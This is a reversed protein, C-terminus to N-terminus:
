QANKSSLNLSLIKQINNKIHTHYFADQNYIIEIVITKDIIEFDIDDTALDSQAFFQTRLKKLLAFGKEEANIYIFFTDSNPSYVIEKICSKYPQKEKKTFEGDITKDKLRKEIKDWLESNYMAEDYIEKLKLMYDKLEDKVMDIHNSGDNTSKVNTKTEM